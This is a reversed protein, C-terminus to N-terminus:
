GIEVTYHLKRGVALMTMLSVEVPRGTVDLAIRLLDLVWDSPNADLIELEAASVPRAAVEEHAVVPQHGLAALVAVAGGRIRAPRALPTGAAIDAPYYSSAVEVARGDLTIVRRRISVLAGVPLRLACAVGEPAEVEGVEILRQGGQRGSARALESWADRHGSTPARLYAASADLQGEDAM